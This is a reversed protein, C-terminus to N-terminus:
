RNKGNKIQELMETLTISWYSHESITLHTLIENTYLSQLKSIDDENLQCNYFELHTLSHFEECAHVLALIFQHSIISESIRLHSIFTDNLLSDILCIENGNSPQVDFVHLHLHKISKHGRLIKLLEITASKDDVSTHDMIDLDVLTKTQGIVQCLSFLTSSSNFWFSLKLRRLSTNSIIIENLFEINMFHNIVLTTLEQNNKLCYLLDQNHVFLDYGFFNFTRCIKNKQLLRVIIKTDERQCGSSFQVKLSQNNFYVIMYECISKSIGM